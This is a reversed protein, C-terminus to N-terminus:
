NKHSCDEHNTKKDLNLQPFNIQYKLALFLDTEDIKILKQGSFNICKILVVDYDVPLITSIIHFITLSNFDLNTRYNTSLSCYPGM